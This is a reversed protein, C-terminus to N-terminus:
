QVLNTNRITLTGDIVSTITTNGSERCDYLCMVAGENNVSYGVRNGISKCNVLTARNTNGDVAFGARYSDGDNNEAICDYCLLQSGVGGEGESPAHHLFFGNFNNRSYVNYCTCHDGYSPTIGAKGNFEFLGGIITSEGKRHESWGDDHNDHAWCDILLSTYYKSFAQYNLITDANFGDGNSGYQCHGAECRIFTAGVSDTYSFAGANYVNVCKCDIVLPNTTKDVNINQYRSEIGILTIMNSIDNNLFLGDGNTYRIPNNSSVTIPSSFYLRDNDTDLYWKYYSATEIEELAGALTNSSCKHIVTSDCRYDYGRQQPLREADRIKTSADNAYDQFLWQLGEPFTGTFEAEQVHLYGSLLTASETVMSNNNVFVPRYNRSAPAITLRKGRANTLDIQKYYVGGSLLITTYGNNIAKTIDDNANLIIYPTVSDEQYQYVAYANKSTNNMTIRIYSANYPVHYTGSTTNAEARVLYQIFNKESDYVCVGRVGRVMINNLYVTSNPKIPIFDTCASETDYSTEGTYGSVYYNPIIEGLPIALPNDAMYVMTPNQENLASFRIYKIDSPIYVTLKTADSHYRILHRVFTQNADYGSLFRAGKISIDNFAIASNAKVAIFDSCKSDVSSAEAGNSDIYKGLVLTGIDITKIDYYESLGLLGLVNQISNASYNEELAQVQAVLATYDEPISQLTELAKQEVASNFAALNDALAQDLYNQHTTYWSNLDRLAEALQEAIDSSHTEYWENLLETIADAKNQLEELGESTLTEIDTKGQEIIEQIHTYQDLFDKAIKIIWDMNLDHFNSYPFGEGFIGANM